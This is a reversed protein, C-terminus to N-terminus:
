ISYIIVRKDIKEQSIEANIKECKTKYADFDMENVKKNELNEKLTSAFMIHDENTSNKIIHVVCGILTREVRADLQETKKIYQFFLIIGVFLFLYGVTMYVAKQNLM